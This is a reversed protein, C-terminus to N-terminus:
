VIRSLKYGRLHFAVRLGASTGAGLTGMLTFAKAATVRCDVAVHPPFFLPFAFRRMKALPGGNQIGSWGPTVASSSLRQTGASYIGFDVPWLKLPEYRLRPSADGGVNWSWVLNSSAKELDNPLELPILLPVTASTALFIDFGGAVAVYAINAPLKGGQAGREWNTEANTLATDTTVAQIGQGTSGVPTSFLSQEAGAAVVGSATTFQCTSFLSTDDYYSFEDLTYKGQAGEFVKGAFKELGALSVAPIQQGDQTSIAM